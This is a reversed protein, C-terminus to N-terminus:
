RFQVVLAAGTADYVGLWQVAGKGGLLGDWYPTSVVQVRNCLADKLSAASDFSALVWFTLDWFNIAQLVHCCLRM